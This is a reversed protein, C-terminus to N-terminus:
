EWENPYYKEGQAWVFLALMILLVVVAFAFWGLGRLAFELLSMGGGEDCTGNQVSEHAQPTVLELAELALHEEFSRGSNPIESLRIKADAVAQKQEETM